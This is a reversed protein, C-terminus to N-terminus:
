EKEKIKKLVNAIALYDNTLITDIGMAFLEEAKAPDDCYFMNCRIGNAHAKDIMEQNYYPAFLQVKSCKWEIARDVIKWPDPDASMCRPIDPAIEMATEMVGSTAMLYVNDLFDYKELLDVIKQFKDAPYKEEAPGFNKIHLNIITQRSFKALVEEFSAIQLGKFRESFRSGFDLAKLESFTKDQVLGTGDSVRDLRDDHCVVPVGDSSFRVDLEIEEAGLAIAAGFAPLTNEPAVTNFGRHACIRPYPLTSEPEIVPSGCTRYAWPTRGQSIFKDNPIMSGGFSNSRMFKHHIDGIECTFLGLKNGFEGLITGEPTVAMSTGGTTANEGMSVSARLVYCNCYFALHQNQIRLIEPREARQFSSVLVIDPKCSAIHAVYETYYTDYCILFGFRIGDVTVIDPRRFKRTYTEDLLNINREARPLHQKYFHGAENGQRDFVATTNRFMGKEAESVYNVAVIANCRRATEKATMLLEDTFKQTYPICAGKEFNAPANTYEPTLIIDCSEDCQKLQEIAFRVSADCDAENYAFPIQLACLKM